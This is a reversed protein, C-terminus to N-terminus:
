SIFLPVYGLPLFGWEVSINETTYFKKGDIYYEIIEPNGNRDIDYEMKTINGERDYYETIFVRDELEYSKAILDQNNDFEYDVKINSGQKMETKLSQVYSEIKSNIQMNGYGPYGYSHWIAASAVSTSLIIFFFITWINKFSSM